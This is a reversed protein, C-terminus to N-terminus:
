LAFQIQESNSQNQSIIWTREAPMNVASAFTLKTCDCEKMGRIEIDHIFSSIMQFMCYKM